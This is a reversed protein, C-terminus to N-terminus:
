KGTFAFDSKYAYRQPCQKLVKRIRKTQDVSISNKRSYRDMINFSTFYEMPREPCIEPQGDLNNGKYVGPYFGRDFNYTDPCYDNDGDENLYEYLDCHTDLIGYFGAIPTALNFENSGQVSPNLFSTYDVIIGGELCDNLDNLTFTDSSKTFTIGPISGFDYDTHMVTPPLFKYAQSINSPDVSFKILWVNLYKNPDYILTKWRTLIVAKYANLKSTFTSASEITKAETSNLTYPNQGISQLKLGTTAYEALRFTVKANGGNPDTTFKGNFINSVSQLQKELYESSVDYTPGGTAPLSIVHFVVPITLEQYEEPLERITVSLYESKLDGLQAYFRKVTGPQDTTTSYIRNKLETGSEEFVKVLGAPVRDEPVLLEERTTVTEFTEDENRIYGIVDKTEYVLTRFGMEAVGNPILTKHDARLEIRTINELSVMMDLVIPEEKTCSSIVFVLLVFKIIYKM